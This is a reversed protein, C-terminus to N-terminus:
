LMLGIYKYSDNSALGGVVLQDRLRNNTAKSNQSTPCCLDSAQPVRPAASQAPRALSPHVLHVLHPHNHKQNAHQAQHTAQAHSVQIESALHSRAHWHWHTSRHLGRHVLPHGGQDPLSNGMDQGDAGSMTVTGNAGQANGGPGGAAPGSGTVAPAAGAANAAGTVGTAGVGPGAPGDLGADLVAEFCKNCNPELVEGEEAAEAVCEDATMVNVVFYNAGKEQIAEQFQMFTLSHSPLAPPPPLEPNDDCVCKLVSRRGHHGGQWFMVCKDAYSIVANRSKLWSQGLM